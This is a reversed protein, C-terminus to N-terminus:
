VSFPSFDIIVPMEVAWSIEYKAVHADLIRVKTSLNTNETYHIHLIYEPNLMTFKLVDNVLIIVNFTFESIVNVTM